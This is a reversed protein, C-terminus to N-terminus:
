SKIVNGKLMDEVQPKQTWSLRDGLAADLTDGCYAHATGGFDPVLPFGFRQSFLERCHRRCQCAEPRWDVTARKIKIGQRLPQAVVETRRMIM